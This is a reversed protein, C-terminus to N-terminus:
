NRLTISGSMATECALQGRDSTEVVMVKADRFRVYFPSYGVYGGYSNKANVSGCIVDDGNGLRYAQYGDGFRTSEPDKMINRVASKAIEVRKPDASQMAESTVKVCGAVAGLVSLALVIKKM